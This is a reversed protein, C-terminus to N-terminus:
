FLGVGGLDLPLRAAFGHVAVEYRCVLRTMLNALEHACVRANELEYRDNQRGLSSQVHKLRLRLRDYDKREEPTAAALAAEFRRAYSNATRGIANLELNDSIM